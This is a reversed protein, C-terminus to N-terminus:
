PTGRGLSPLGPFDVFQGGEEDIGDAERDRRSRLTVEVALVTAAVTLSAALLGISADRGPMAVSLGDLPELFRDVIGELSARGSPLLDVILDALRPDPTETPEGVEVLALDPRGEPSEATGTGLPQSGPGEAIARGEGAGKALGPDLNGRAQSAPSAILGNPSGFAASGRSGAIPSADSGPGPPGILALTADGGAPHGPWGSSDESGTEVHLGPPATVGPQRVASDSSAAHVPTAFSLAATAIAPSPSPSDGPSTRADTTDGATTARAMLIPPSPSPSFAPGSSGAAQAAQGPTPTAGPDVPSGPTWTDAIPAAGSSTPFDAESRSSDQNTSALCTSGADTSSATTSGGPWLAQGGQGTPAFTQDAAHSTGLAQDGRDATAFNRDGMPVIPGRIPPALDAHDPVTPAPGSRASSLGTLSLLSLLRRDELPELAPANRSKRPNSRGM